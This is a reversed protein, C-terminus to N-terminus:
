LSQKFTELDTTPAQCAFQRCVYATTQQNQQQYSAAFPILKRFQNSGNNVAWVTNPLFRSYIEALMDQTQLDDNKGVLVIEKGPFLAFSLAMLYHTYGAPYRNVEGSFAQLCQNAAEELEADGTLRALRFQNWAAVSNGSPLAGDYIDKPRAFLAESDTGYLFFGGNKDDWFLEKMQRNLGVATELYDADCTAEYLETLGWIFFAYDDLYGLHAAEGDRYRAFLRGDERRLHTLVFGAAKVAHDKYGEDGLVQAAKALAAIMLGNWATLVKDDKHPHVRQERAQFLKNRANTHQAEFETEDLGREECFAQVDQKMLHLINKGDFNGFESVQYYNCILSGTEDGLVAKVQKPTWTYFRGEEGESDADEASYFGGEVSTMDRLVYTFVEKAIRKYRDRKTVQYAELYAIALLANDYLMKEFHPVLWRRDTSYRAFGGGVHDYIGGRYMADLTKEVMELAHVEGTQQYYRLLFSLNHPTPFKPADGFGGYEADFEDALTRYASHVTEENLDSAAAGSQYHASVAEAIKDGSQEVKDRNQKWEELLKALIDLLGGRGYKREKPFYTGAFFPKKDPTMVITLPWGGQGTLAQCVTMYISDIDPREERDVKIAVFNENMYAAVEDDEFSEREMVHCWHCTSYGISLFIPKDEQEAKQFAEDGWPFWDVPNHAHQLLYPSKEHFLRNTYTHEGNSQTM